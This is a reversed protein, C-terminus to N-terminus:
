EGEKGLREKFPNAGFPYSTMGEKGTKWEPEIGTMDSWFLQRKLKPSDEEVIM